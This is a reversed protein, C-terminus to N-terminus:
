AVRSHLVRQASSCECKALCPITIKGHSTVTDRMVHHFDELGEGRRVMACPEFTVRIFKQYPPFLGPYSALKELTM